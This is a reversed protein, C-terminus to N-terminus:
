PASYVEAEKALDDSITINFKAAKAKDIVIGFKKPREPFITQISEGKFLREIMAAAQIGIGETNLYISATAGWNEVVDKRGLGILPKTATKEVMNAFPSQSGMQDSAALFVDVKSDLEKIYKEALGAMRKQGGDSPIFSVQRFHVTVGQWEETKLADELWARYSHSQAMDAYVFGINKVNPILQRIFSLRTEVPVYYSIGTFNGLPPEDYKDVLGVGVPDTVTAFVFFYKDSQWVLDKFASVALTGNLFVADFHERQLRFRLLSKATGKYNSLTHYEFTFGAAKTYGRKELEAMMAERTGQYPSGIQSDVVLLKKNFVTDGAIVPKGLACLCLGLILPIMSLTLHGAKVM